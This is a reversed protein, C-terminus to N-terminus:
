KGAPSGRGHIRDLVEAVVIQREIEPAFAASQRLQRCWAVAARGGWADPPEALIRSTTGIFQTTLFETFSGNQNRLAVGGRTGHFAAEIVADRGAHLHWSCSLNVVAGGDTELRASAYDEVEDDNPALRRGKAFVCGSVSAVSADLAWLAADVLHIGLDIVCGGGSLKKEHFWPKQPGYANHFVLDGAFVKGLEGAEILARIKQM